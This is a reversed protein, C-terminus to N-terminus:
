QPPFDETSTLKPIFGSPAVSQRSLHKHNVKTGGLYAVHGAWRTGRFRIVTIIYSLSTRM